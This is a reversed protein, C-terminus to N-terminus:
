VAIRGLRSLASPRGQRQKERDQGKQKRQLMKQERDKRVEESELRKQLQGAL